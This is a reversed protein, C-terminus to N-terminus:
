EKKEEDGGAEEGNDHKEEGESPTNAAANNIKILWDTFNEFMSPNEDLWDMYEEYDVVMDKNSGMIYSYFLVIIGNIGSQASFSEGMIKEYIIHARFTQKLNLEEFQKIENINKM